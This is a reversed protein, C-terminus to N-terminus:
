KTPNDDMERIEKAIDLIDKIVKVMVSVSFIITAIIITLLLILM